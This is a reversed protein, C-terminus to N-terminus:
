RSQVRFSRARRLLFVRRQLRPAARKRLSSCALLDRVKEALTM